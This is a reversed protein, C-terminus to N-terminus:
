GKFVPCGLYKGLNDQQTINFISSVIQKDHASANKLFTLSSKHFNILQSSNHCFNRVSSPEHCAEFNTKCFLLSDYAFLLCSIKSAKSAIKVGIGYKPRSIAKRLMRTLAEM